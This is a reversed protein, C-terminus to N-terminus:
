RQAGSDNAAVEQVESEEGALMLPPPALQEARELPAAVIPETRSRRHRDLGELFYAAFVAFLFGLLTGALVILKRPPGYKRLPPVAAEVVQLEMADREERIGALVLQQQLLEYVTEEVKMDRYLRQYQLVLDPMAGVPILVSTGTARDSELEDIQQRLERQAALSQLVLPDLEKRSLALQEFHVQEAQLTGYLRALAEIAARAQAELEITKYAEKFSKLREEAGRLREGCAALQAGLFRKEHGAKGFDLARTLVQLENVFANAMAAAREPDRDIVTVLLLDDRSIEFRAVARLMEITQDLDEAEYIRQLDFRQAVSEMARRTKLLGLYVQDKSELGLAQNALSATTAAQGLLVDLPNQSSRAPLLQATAAYTKPLYLAVAVSALGAGMACGFLLRRRRWLLTLHDFLGGGGGNM